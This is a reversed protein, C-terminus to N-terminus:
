RVGTLYNEEESIELGRSMPSLTMSAIMVITDGEVKDVIKRSWSCEVGGM